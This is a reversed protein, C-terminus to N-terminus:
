HDRHFVRLDVAYSARGGNDVGGVVLGFECVGILAVGDSEKPGCRIDCAHSAQSNLDFRGIGLGHEIHGSVQVHRPM